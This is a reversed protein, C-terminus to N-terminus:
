NRRERQIKWILPLIKTKGKKWMLIGPPRFWLLATLKLTTMRGELLKLEELPRRERLELFMLLLM